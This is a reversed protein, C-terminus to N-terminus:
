ERELPSLRAIAQRAEAVLPQLEPDADRWYEVFYEYAQRAKEFEGKAEYIEGLERQFLPHTSSPGNMPFRFSRYVREADELRGLERYIRGLWWTGLQTEELQAPDELIAVAAEPGRRKWAGYGRVTRARRAAERGGLSDGEARMRVARRELEVIAREHDAWRGRDAAYLGFRYIDPAYATSDVTTSGVVEALTEEPVPFGLAVASMLLYGSWGRGLGESDALDLIARGQGYFTLTQFRLWNQAGLVDPREQARRTVEQNIRLRPHFLTITVNVVTEAEEADLRAIAARQAASDGFALDRALRLERAGDDGTAVREYAALRREALAADAHMIWAFETYHYRYLANGPDLEVAREFTSEIEEATALAGSVHLLTEGLRFWMEADDPYTRVAERLGDIQDVDGYMGAATARVLLAERAPLRDVLRRARDLHQNSLDLNRPIWRYASALRMHALAFTSDARVARTYAERAPEIDFRRYLAEGELYAMLAEPSSTTLAATDVKPLEGQGELIVRLVEAGLRDVLPLVDDPPGEVQARGLREGTEVEYVTAVFRVSPGISIASGVLAYRAGSERAVELATALDPTEAGPVRERWRAMVTGPSIARLGAVEDLGISLLSVMGENMAELGAGEVQFPLVALGPAAGGALAESPTFSRGRDRIVVYAGALGLIM